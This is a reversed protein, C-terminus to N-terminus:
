EVRNMILDVAQIFGLNENHKVVYWDQVDTDSYAPIACITNGNLISYMVDSEFNPESYISAASDTSSMVIMDRMLNSPDLPILSLDFHDVGRSIEEVNISYDKWQLSDSSQCRYVICEEDSFIISFFDRFAYISHMPMSVQLSIFQESENVWMLLKYRTNSQDASVFDFTVLMQPDQISYSEYDIYFGTLQFGKRKLAKKNEFIVEWGNERKGMIVLATEENKVAVIPFSKANQFYETSYINKGVIESDVPCYLEWSVYETNKLSELLAKDRVKGKNLASSDAYGVNPVQCIFLVSMIMIIVLVRSQKMM